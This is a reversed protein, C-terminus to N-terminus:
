PSAVEYRAEIIRVPDIAADPQQQAPLLAAGLALMACSAVIAFTRSAYMRTVPYRFQPAIQSRATM